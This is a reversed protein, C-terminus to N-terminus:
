ILSTPIPYGYEILKVDRHQIAETLTKFCKTYTKSENPNIRIKVMFRSNGTKLEFINKHGLKNNSQARRKNKNNDSHSGSSLNEIRNDTPDGYIHDLVEPEEGTHWKYIVRALLYAAGKIRLEIRNNPGLCGVTDGVNVQWAPKIKWTLYGESHYEFLRKLETQDPLIKFNM